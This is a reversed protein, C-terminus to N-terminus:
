PTDKFKVLWPEKNAAKGYVKGTVDDLEYKQSCTEAHDNGVPKGVCYQCKTTNEQTSKHKDVAEL